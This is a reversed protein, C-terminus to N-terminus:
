GCPGRRAHGPLPRRLARLRARRVDQLDRGCAPPRHHLGRAGARRPARVRRPRRRPLSALAGQLAEARAALVRRAVEEGAPTLAVHVSRGDAPDARRLALGDAELRDIVRVTRSHSLRLGHALKQIPRDGAWEHLAALAAAPVGSVGAADTTADGIRDALAFALAGIVNDDHGARPPASASMPRLIYAERVSMVVSSGQAPARVAARSSTLVASARPVRMQGAHPASCAELPRKQSLQPASM